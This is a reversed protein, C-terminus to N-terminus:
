RKRERERGREREKERRGGIGIEKEGEREEERRDIEILWTRRCKKNVFVWQNGVEGFCEIGVARRPFFEIVGVCASFSVVGDYICM